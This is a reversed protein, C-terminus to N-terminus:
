TGTAAVRLELLADRNLHAADAAVGELWASLDTAEDEPWDQAVRELQLLLLREAEMELKKMEERLNNLGADEGAAVKWRERLARVPRVVEADWPGAVDLLRKLRQEDFSVGRVGLWLGCLLLCVNAGKSQLHLCLPEVGRRCYTEVSFSWLDSSM